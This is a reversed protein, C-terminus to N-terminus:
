FKNWTKDQTKVCRGPLIVDKYSLKNPIRKLKAIKKLVDTKALNPTKVGFQHEKVENHHAYKQTPTKILFPSKEFTKLYVPFFM